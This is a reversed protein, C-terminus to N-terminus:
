ESIAVRFYYTAEYTEWTVRIAMIYTGPQQTVTLLITNDGPRAEPEGTFQGTDSLYEIQVAIPRAGGVKLQAASGHLLDLRRASSNETPSEVCLPEGTADMVTCYRYGAPINARGAVILALPPVEEPPEPLVATPTVAGTGQAPTPQALGAPRGAPALVLTFLGDVQWVESGTLEVMQTEYGPAFASVTIEDTNRLMFPDFNFEGNLGTITTGSSGQEPYAPAHHRYSVSAGVVPLTIGADVIRVIGRLTIKGLDVTVLPTATPTASPPVPTETATPTPVPTDTATSTPTVTPTATATPTPTATPTHTPTATPTPTPTPPVVGAVELGFVYSVYAERGEIDDYTVDVQVRYFNDELQADYVAVNNIGLDQTEGFGLLTATYSSPPGVDSDIVFRVLDGKTVLANHLPQVLAVADVDCVLNDPSEPWCYSYVNEEYMQNNVQLRVIPRQPMTSQDSGCAALVAVAALVLIAFRYTKPRNM